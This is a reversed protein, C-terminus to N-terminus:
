ARLLGRAAAADFFIKRANNKAKDIYKKTEAAMDVCPKSM